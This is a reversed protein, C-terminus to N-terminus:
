VEGMDIYKKVGLSLLDNDRGSYSRKVKKYGDDSFCHYIDAPNGNRDNNKNQKTIYFVPSLDYEGNNYKEIFINVAKQHSHPIHDIEIEIRRSISSNNSRKITENYILSVITCNSKFTEIKIIKDNYFNFYSIITERKEAFVTQLSRIDISEKQEM